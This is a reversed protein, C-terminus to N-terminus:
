KSDSLLELMQFTLKKQVQSKFREVKKESLHCTGSKLIIVEAKNTNVSVFADQKEVCVQM